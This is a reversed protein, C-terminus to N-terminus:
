GPAAAPWPECIVVPIERDTWSRYTEFDPYMAVLRPWLEAREAAGATRARMRRVERRVQVTIEPDAEMNRYWLPHRPLGGQSAVLIVRDGDSLFLLPLTRAIGTKRGRTTVLCVPVGRPFASGIRWKGGVRGGTARYVAVNLRSAVKLIRPVIPSDLGGPRKRRAPPAPQAAPM